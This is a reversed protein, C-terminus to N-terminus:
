LGTQHVEHVRIMDKHRKTIDFPIEYGLNNFIKEKVKNIGKQNLRWTSSLVVKIDDKFHEILKCLLNLSIPDFIDLDKHMIEYARDRGLMEFTYITYNMNNLVGDIDLFILKM